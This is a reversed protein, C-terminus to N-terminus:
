QDRPEFARIGLVGLGSFFATGGSLFESACRLVSLLHSKIPSLATPEVAIDRFQMAPATSPWPAVAKALHVVVMMALHTM